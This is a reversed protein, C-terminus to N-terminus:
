PNKPNHGFPDADIFSVRYKSVTGGTAGNTLLAKIKVYCETPFKLKYFTTSGTVPNPYSGGFTVTHTGWFGNVSFLHANETGGTSSFQTDITNTDKALWQISMSGYTADNLSCEASITLTETGAVSIVDVQCWAEKVNKIIKTTSTTTGSTVFDMVGLYPKSTTPSKLDFDAVAFAQSAGFCIAMFSFACFLNKFIKKM